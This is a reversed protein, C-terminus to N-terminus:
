KRRVATQNDRGYSPRAPFHITEEGGLTIMDAEGGVIFDYFESSYGSHKKLFEEKTLVAFDWRHQSTNESAPLTFKSRTYQMGNM